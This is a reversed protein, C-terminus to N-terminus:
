KGFSENPLCFDEEEEESDCILSFWVFALPPSGSSCVSMLVPRGFM